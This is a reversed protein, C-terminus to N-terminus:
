AEAGTPPMLEVIQVQGTLLESYQICYSRPHGDTNEEEVCFINPYVGRIVVAANDVTVKPRTRRVHIHIHPAQEYLEQIRHRLEEVTGPVFASLAM